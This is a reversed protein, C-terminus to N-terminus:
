AARVQRRLPSLPLEKTHLWCHEGGNYVSLRTACGIRACTRDAPYRPLPTGDLLGVALRPTLRDEDRAM